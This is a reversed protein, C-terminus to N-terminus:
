DEDNNNSSKWTLRSEYFQIVVQPCQHNCIKAPVLDPEELNKWKVLFSLEGSSDTAGLIKEPTKDAFDNATTSSPTTPKKKKAPSQASSDDHHRSHHHEKGNNIQQQQRKKPKEEHQQEEQQQKEKLKNEFESILDPCDLNSSPEWTNDTEPYGKWKLFYEVRGGRKRKDLIKEVIFENEQESEEQGSAESDSVNAAKQNTM